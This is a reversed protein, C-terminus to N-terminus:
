SILDVHLLVTKIGNNFYSCSHSPTSFVYLLLGFRVALCTYTLSTVRMTVCVDGGSFVFAYTLQKANEFKRRNKHIRLLLASFHM